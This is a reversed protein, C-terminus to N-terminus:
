LQKRFTELEKVAEMINESSVEMAFNYKKYMNGYRKDYYETLLIYVLEDLEDNKLHSCLKEVVATGLRKKLSLLTNHMLKRTHSDNVPYDEIIRNIRTPISATIKIMIGQQMAQALSKPLFVAGLKNSEGEIFYPPTQLTKLNDALLSEFQKQNRPSMNIGGFLSSRHQALGELDISNDINEIIRTKGTGTMGHLVILDGHFSELYDLTQHRYERYGGNLQHAEIDLYSLLNVISRSRMGGKACYITLSSNKYPTFQELLDPFKDRVFEFGKKVADTKSGHKYITGIVSREYNDFLPVNVAGSIAGEQFEKSSRVDILVHGKIQSQELTITKSDTKQLVTEQPIDSFLTSSMTVYLAFPEPILFITLALRYSFM